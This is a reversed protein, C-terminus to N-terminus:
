HSSHARTGDHQARGSMRRGRDVAQDPGRPCSARASAPQSYSRQGRPHEMSDHPSSPKGLAPVMPAKSRVCGSAKGSARQHGSNGSYNSMRRSNRGEPGSNQQGPTAQPGLENQGYGGPGSDRPWFDNPVAHRPDVAEVVAPPPDGGQSRESWTQCTYMCFILCLVCCLLGVIFLLVAITVTELSFGFITM